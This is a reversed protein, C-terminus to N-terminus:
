PSDIMDSYGEKFTPFEFEFGLAKLHANSCRKNQPSGAEAEVILPEPAGLAKALWTYVTVEDTPEDDVGVYCEALTVGQECQAILYALVNVCDKEHIRNSYKPPTRQAECGKRVKDLLRTRTGGYIGGFRVSTGNFGSHALIQEAELIHTGNFKTPLTPSNEDVISGDNQHYVGTSSVFFFRKVERSGLAAILHAVGVPYAARYGEDSYESPTATYIVYDIREPLITLSSPQSLDAQLCEFGPQMASRRLGIPRHGENALQKGLRTGITGCGALLITAM